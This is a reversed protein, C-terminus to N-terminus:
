SNLLNMHTSAKLTMHEYRGTSICNSVPDCLRYGRLRPRKSESARRTARKLSFGVVHKSCPGGM